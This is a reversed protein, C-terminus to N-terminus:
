TLEVIHRAYLQAPSIGLGSMEESGILNDVKSGMLQLNKAGWTVSWTSYGEITGFLFGGKGAVGKETHAYAAGIKFASAVLFNEVTQAFNYSLEGGICGNIGTM